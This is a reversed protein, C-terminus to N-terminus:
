RIAGIRKAVDAPIGPTANAPTQSAEAELTEIYTADTKAREADADTQKQLTVLRGRLMAVQAAAEESVRRQYANKDIQMYAFGAALVAIAALAVKWNRAFFAVAALALVALTVVVILAFNAGLYSLMWLM